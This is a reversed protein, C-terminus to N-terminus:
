GFLLSGSSHLHCPKLKEPFTVYGSIVTHIKKDARWLRPLLNNPCRLCLGSTSQRQLVTTGQPSSAIRTQMSNIASHISFENHWLCVLSAYFGIHSSTTFCFIHLVIAQKWQSLGKIHVFWTLCLFCLGPLPELMRGKQLNGLLWADPTYWGTSRKFSSGTRESPFDSRGSFLM